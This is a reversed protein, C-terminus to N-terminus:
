SAIKPIALKPPTPTTPKPIGLASKRAPGNVAQQYTDWTANPNFWMFLKRHSAKYAARQKSQYADKSSNVVDSIETPTLGALVERAVVAIPKPNASKAREADVQARYDDIQKDTLKSKLNQYKPMNFYGDADLQRLDNYYATEAETLGSGLYRQVFNLAQSGNTNIWDALKADFKDGDVEKSVPDVLSPDGLLTFYSNLYEANKGKIDTNNDLLVGLKDRQEKLLLKRNSRFDALSQQNSTTLTNNLTRRKTIDDRVAQSQKFREGVEPLKDKNDALWQRRNILYDPDSKRIGAEELLNDIQESNTLPSSKVGVFGLGTKTLPEEGLQRVSLPLFLNRAYDTLGEISHLDGVQNGVVDKGAVQNVATSLVPNLKTRLLYTPDGLEWDDAGDTPHPVSQVLGRVLSDWPGFLSIDTGGVNRVRMWNSDTPNFETDEGRAANAAITMGGALGILKMLQRRAVQGEISGDSAAKVLTELQSQFFRPAFLTAAGISGGFSNPSYGTARNAAKGISELVQERTAGEPVDLNELLKMGGNKYNDYLYDAISIRDILGGETFARNSAKLVHGLGPVKELAGGLSKYEEGKAGPDPIHLYKGWETVTPRDTGYNLKDRNVIWKGIYGEDRAAQATQGIVKGALKPNDAGTLLQQIGMRSLDATAWAERLTNNIASYWKSAGQEPAHKKLAANIVDAVDPAVPIENFGSTQYLKVVGTNRQRGTAKPLKEIEGALWHESLRRAYDDAFSKVAVEPAPYEYGAARGQAMSEFSEPKFSGPTGGSKLYKPSITPVQEEGLVTHHRPLFFGEPDSIFKEGRAFEFGPLSQQGHGMADIAQQTVKNVQGVPVGFSEATSKFGEIGLKLYNMIDKQEPTLLKSYKSYNLAIDQIDLGHEGLKQGGLSAVVGREDAGLSHKAAVMVRALSNGQMKLVNDIKSMQNVLPTAVSNAELGGLGVKALQSKVRNGLQEYKTLGTTPTPPPTIFPDAAAGGSIPKTRRSTLENDIRTYDEELVRIADARRARKADSWNDADDLAAGLNELKSTLETESLESLPSNANTNPTVQHMSAAQNEQQGVGLIEAVRPDLPEDPFPKYGGLEPNDLLHRMQDSRAVARAGRATHRAAQGEGAIGGALGGILLALAKVVDNDQYEAAQSAAGAGLAGGIGAQLPQTLFKGVKPIKAGLGPGAYTLPDALVGAATKLGQPVAQDQEFQQFQERGQTYPNNGRALAAVAGFGRAAPSAAQAVNGLDVNGHVAQRVAEVTPGAIPKGVHEAAAGLADLGIGAADKLAGSLSFGGSSNDTRATLAKAAAIRQQSQKKAKEERDIYHYDALLGNLDYPM